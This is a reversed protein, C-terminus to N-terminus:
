YVRKPLAATAVGMIILGIEVLAGIWAGIEGGVAMGLWVPILLLGMFGGILLTGFGTLTDVSQTRFANWTIAFDAAVRALSGVLSNPIIFVPANPITRPDAFAWMVGYGMIGMGIAMTTLIVALQGLWGWNQWFWMTLRGSFVIFGFAFCLGVSLALSKWLNLPAWIGGLPINGVTWDEGVSSAPPEDNIYVSQTDPPTTPEWCGGNNDTLGEVCFINPVTLFLPKRHQIWATGSGQTEQQYIIRQSIGFEIVVQDPSRRILYPMSSPRGLSLFQQQYLQWQAGFIFMTQTGFIDRWAIIAGPQDYSWSSRPCSVIGARLNHSMEALVSDNPFDTTPLVNGCGLPQLAGKSSGWEMQMRLVAQRKALNFDDPSIKTSDLIFNYLVWGIVSLGVIGGLMVLFGRVTSSERFNWLAYWIGCILLFALFDTDLRFANGLPSGSAMLPILIILAIVILLSVGVFRSGLLLSMLGTRLPSFAMIALIAVVSVGLLAIIASPETLSPPM